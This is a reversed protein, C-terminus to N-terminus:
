EDDNFGFAKRRRAYDSLYGTSINQVFKESYTLAKTKEQEVFSNEKKTQFYLKIVSDPYLDKNQFDLNWYNYDKFNEFTHGHRVYKELIRKQLVKYFIFPLLILCWFSYPFLFGRYFKNPTYKRSWLWSQDLKELQKDREITIEKYIDKYVPNTKLKELKFSSDTIMLRKILELRKSDEVWVNILNQYDAKKPKIYKNSNKFM